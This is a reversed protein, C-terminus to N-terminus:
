CKVLSAEFLDEHFAIYLKELTNRCPLTCRGHKDVDEWGKV